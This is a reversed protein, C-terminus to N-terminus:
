EAISKELIDKMETIMNNMEKKTRQEKNMEEQEKIYMEQVKEITGRANKRQSRPDDISVM